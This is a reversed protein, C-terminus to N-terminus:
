VKNVYKWKYGYATKQHGKCVQCIGTANPNLDPKVNKIVWLNALTISEYKELIELTNKDMRYVAKSAPNLGGFKGRCGHNLSIKNRTEESLKKGKWYRGNNESMRQKTSESAKKGLAKKRIKERVEPRKAPNKDGKFKESVKKRIEDHFMPNDDKFISGGQLVNYGFPCVSNYKSIFFKEYFDLENNETQMLEEIYFNEIGYKKMALYIPCTRREINSLHEKFRKEITKRTQGIYVKSNVKNKIIYIFGIKIGRIISKFIYIKTRYKWSDLSHVKPERVFRIRRHIVYNIHLNIM